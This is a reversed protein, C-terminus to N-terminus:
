SPFLFIQLAVCLLCKEIKKGYHSYSKSKTETEEQQNLEQLRRFHEPSLSKMMFTHDIVQSLGNVQNHKFVTIIECIEM